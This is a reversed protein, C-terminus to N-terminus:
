KYYFKILRDRLRIILFLFCNLILNVETRKIRKLNINKGGNLYSGNSKFSPRNNKNASMLISSGNNYKSNYNNCHQKNHELESLLAHKEGHLKEIENNLRKISLEHQKKLLDMQREFDDKM